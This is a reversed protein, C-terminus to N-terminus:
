RQALHDLKERATKGSKVVSEIADKIREIAVYQQRHEERTDADPDKLAARACEKQVKEFISVLVPNDLLAKAREGMLEQERLEEDPTM